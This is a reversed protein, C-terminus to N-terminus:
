ARRRRIIEGCAECIVPFLGLKFLDIQAGDLMTRTACRGETHEVYLVRNDLTPDPLFMRAHPKRLIM